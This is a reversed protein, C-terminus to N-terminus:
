DGCTSGNCCSPRVAIAKWRLRGRDAWHQCPREGFPCGDFTCHTSWRRGPGPCGCRCCVGNLLCMFTMPSGLTVIVPAHVTHSRDRCSCLCDEAAAAFCTDLCVQSSSRVFFHNNDDKWAVANQPELYFPHQGALEVVGRVVTLTETPNSGSEAADLIGPADGKRFTYGDPNGLVSKNALAEDITLIRPSSVATEDVDVKVLRALEEAAAQTEAVLLGVPQNFFSVEDAPM